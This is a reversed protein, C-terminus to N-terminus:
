RGRVLQLRHAADKRLLIDARDRALVIHDRLNTLNIRSWVMRGFADAQVEDMHRFQAYFSAPDTEAARWFGLFRESFWTELDGESADLYILLDLSDALSRGDPFPAFGLGELIVIDSREVTRELAPDVDYTVHSYGPIRTPGVRLAALTAFLGDADYSEPFGKRLGLGRANLMDNPLLFGDTSIVEVRLGPDLRSTLQTCLTSKGAAVSGTLGVVLPRTEEAKRALRNALATLVTDTDAESSSM